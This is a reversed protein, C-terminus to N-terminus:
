QAAEALFENRLADDSLSSWDFLSADLPTTSPEDSPDSLGAFFEHAFVDTASPRLSPAPHLIAALLDVASETSSLGLVKALQAIPPRLRTLVGDM